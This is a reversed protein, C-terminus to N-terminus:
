VQGESAVQGAATQNKVWQAVATVGSSFVSNRFARVLGVLAKGFLATM